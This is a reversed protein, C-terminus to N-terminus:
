TDAPSSSTKLDVRWAIGAAHRRVAITGGCHRAEVRALRLWPAADTTGRLTADGPITLTVHLTDESADREISLILQRAGPCSIGAGRALAAVIWTLAQLTPAPVAVPPPAADITCGGPLLEVILPRFATWWRDLQRDAAPSLREDAGGGRLMRTVLTLDRMGAAVLRLTGAATSIHGPPFDAELTSAVLAIPGTLNGLEHAIAGLLLRLLETRAATVASAGARSSSRRGSPM